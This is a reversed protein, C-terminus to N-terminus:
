RMILIMIKLKKQIFLIHDINYNPFFIFIFIKVLRDFSELDLM